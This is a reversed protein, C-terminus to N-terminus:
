AAKAQWVESQEQFYRWMKAPDFDLLTGGAEFHMVFVRGLAYINSGAAAAATLAAGTLGWVPVLKLLSHSVLRTQIAATLAGIIIKTRQAHFDVQYLACLQKLMRMGVTTVGVIEIFPVPVLAIGSALATYNEILTAVEQRDARPRAKPPPAAPPM